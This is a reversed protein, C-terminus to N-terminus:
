WGIRPTRDEARKLSVDCRAAGASSQGSMIIVGNLMKSVMEMGRGLMDKKGVKNAWDKCSRKLRM